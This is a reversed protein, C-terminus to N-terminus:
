RTDGEPSRSFTCGSITVNEVGCLKKLTKLAQVLVTADLEGHKLIAEIGDRAATVAEVSAGIHLMPAEQATRKKV